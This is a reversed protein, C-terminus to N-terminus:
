EFCDPKLDQADESARNRIKGLVQSSVPQFDPNHHSPIIPLFSYLLARLRQPCLRLSPISERLARPKRSLLPQFHSALHWSKSLDHM